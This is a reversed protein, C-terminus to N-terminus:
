PAPTKLPDKATSIISPKKAQVCSLATAYVPNNRGAYEGADDVRHRMLLDLINIYIYFFQSVQVPVLAEAHDAVISERTRLITTFSVIPM